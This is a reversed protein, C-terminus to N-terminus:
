NVGIRNEYLEHFCWYGQDVPADKSGLLDNRDFIISVNTYKSLKEAEKITEKYIVNKDLALVVDCKLSLIKKLQYSNISNTGISVTNYFGYEEAKMVSKEGEFIIVENKEQIDEMHMHLGFLIDNIGLKYYYIYKPIDLEKYNPITTRGKISILNGVDDYIPILIRKKYKDFRINFREQTEQSIGEDIWEQIPIKEYNDLIDPSLIKHKVDNKINKDKFSKICKM